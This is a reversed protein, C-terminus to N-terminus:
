VLNMSCRCNSVWLTKGNRRVCVVPFREMEFGFVEGKYPVYSVQSPWFYSFQNRGFYLRILPRKSTYVGNWFRSTRPPTVAFTVRYGLKQALEFMGDALKPSSTTFTIYERFNWEPHGKWTPQARSGDGDVLGEFLEQLLEPGLELVERPISKEGAHGLKRFWAILAEDNLPIFFAQRGAWVEDFLLRLLNEMRERLDGKEQSIKVQWRGRPPKSISGESLYWGLFRLFSKTPFPRGAVTIEDVHRGKWVPVRPIRSGTGLDAIPRRVLSRSGRKFKWDSVFALNHDPTVLLDITRTRYHAVEGNWPLRWVFKIRDRRLERTEPDMAWLVDGERLSAVPRWGRVTWVEHDPTFCRPHAPPAMVGISFPKDLPQCENHLASCIPCTKEDLATVWCKMADRRIVGQRRAERWAELRSHNQAAIFETRAITEARRRLMRRAQRSVIAEVQPLGEELLARRRAMLARAQRETLGVLDRIRRAAEEPHEGWKIAEALLARLGRVTTESLDRARALGYRRLWLSALNEPVEMRLARAERLFSEEFVPVLEELPVRHREALPERVAKWFERTRGTRIARALDRLAVAAGLTFIWGQVKRVYQTESPAKAKAVVM